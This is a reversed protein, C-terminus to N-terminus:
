RLDGTLQLVQLLISCRGVVFVAKHFHSWIMKICKVGLPANFSSILTRLCSSSSSSALSAANFGCSCAYVLVEAEKGVSPGPRHSSDLDRVEMSASFSQRVFLNVIHAELLQVAAAVQKAVAQAVFGSM